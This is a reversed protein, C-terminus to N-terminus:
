QPFAEGLAMLRWTNRKPIDLLIRVGRPENGNGHVLIFSGDKPEEGKALWADSGIPILSLERLRKVLREDSVLGPFRFFISPTIGRALLAQEVRLVEQDFDPGPTLLFNRELPEGPHYPHDWSHNVWTIALRGGREENVLWDFEDPHKELWLGSIAIAVPVAGESAQPLREMAEFLGKEFSSRSPCLDVTLFVGGTAKEARRAGDNQVPFPPAAHKQLALLFPSDSPKETETRATSFGSADVVQTKFSFPDVALLKPHGDSTFFRIAILPRGSQLLGPLFVPRYDGIVAAHLNTVFGVLAICCLFSLWSRSCHRM